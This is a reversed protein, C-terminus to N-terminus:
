DMCEAIKRGFEKAAKPGNATVIKGDVTVNQGTWIAGKEMLNGEESPFATAKKGKLVGANALIGPAICIAAVVKGDANFKRVLEQAKCDNFYAEAGVGGVFVIGGFEGVNIQGIAMTAEAIGGLIGTANGVHTSAVITKVGANELETQTDFLEEDRFGKFAVVLVVKRDAVLGGILLECMCYKLKDFVWEYTMDWSRLRMFLIRWIRSLSYGCSPLKRLCLFGNWSRMAVMREAWHVSARTFM